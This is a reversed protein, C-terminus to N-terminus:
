QPGVCVYYIDQEAPAAQEFFNYNEFAVRGSDVAEPYNKTWVQARGRSPWTVGPSLQSVTEAQAITTPMDCLTYKINSHQKLLPIAYAGVGSAIDAVTSVKDWPLGAFITLPLNYHKHQATGELLALSGM